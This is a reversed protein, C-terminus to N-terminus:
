RSEYDEIKKTFYELDMVGLDILEAMANVIATSLRTHTYQFYVTSGGSFPEGYAVFWITRGESGQKHILLRAYRSACTYRYLKSLDLHQPLECLASEIGYINVFKQLVYTMTKRNM